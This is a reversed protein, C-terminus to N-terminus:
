IAIYYTPRDFTYSTKIQAIVESPCDYKKGRLGEM